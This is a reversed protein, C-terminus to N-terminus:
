KKPCFLEYETTGPPAKLLAAMRGQTDPVKAAEAASVPCPQVKSAPDGADDKVPPPNGAAIPDIV